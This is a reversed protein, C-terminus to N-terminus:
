KIKNKEWYEEKTAQLFDKGFTKKTYISYEETFFM